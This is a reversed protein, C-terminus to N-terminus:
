TAMSNNIVMNLSRLVFHKHWLHHEHKQKWGSERMDFKSIGM